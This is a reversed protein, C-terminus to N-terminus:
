QTQFQNYGVIKCTVGGSTENRVVCGSTVSLVISDTWCIRGAAAGTPAANIWCNLSLNGRTITLSPIIIDKNDVNCVNCVYLFYSAPLISISKMNYIKLIPFTLVREEQEKSDKVRELPHIMHCLLELSRIWLPRHIWHPFDRALCPLLFKNCLVSPLKYRRLFMEYGLVIIGWGQGSVEIM